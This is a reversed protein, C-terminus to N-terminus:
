EVGHIYNVSKEALSSASIIMKSDNKLVQLWSQIYGVSNKFTKETDIGANGMLYASGIEAVLEEKSRSERNAFYKKAIERDLRKEAGTSHVMEHFAVGYFEELGDFAKRDPMTISDHKPDYYAQSGNETFVINEKKLYGQMISEAEALEGGDGTPEKWYKPELDTDGINFVKYYRLMPITTEEGDKEKKLMQWFVVTKGKAGKNVKGGEKQIQNFTAYEGVEGILMQNLISYGKGTSRSVIQNGTFWPQHWPVNGKELDKILKETIIEYVNM